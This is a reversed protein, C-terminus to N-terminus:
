TDISTLEPREGEPRMRRRISLARPIVLNSSRNLNSSYCHVVEVVRGAEAPGRVAGGRVVQRQGYLAADQRLVEGLMDHPELLGLPRLQRPMALARPTSRLCSRLHRLSTSGPPPAM